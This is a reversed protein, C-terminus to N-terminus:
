EAEELVYERKLFEYLKFVKRLIEKDEQSLRASNKGMGVYNLWNLDKQPETGFTRDYDLLWNELTSPVAEPMGEIFIKANGIEQENKRLAEMIPQNVLEYRLSEPVTLQRAEIREVLDLDPDNLMEMVNEKILQPVEEDKLLALRLMKLRVLIKSLEENEDIKNGSEEGKKLQFEIEKALDHAEKIELYSIVKQAQQKLQELVINNKM